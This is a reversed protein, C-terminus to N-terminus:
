CYSVPFLWENNYLYGYSETVYQYSIREVVDLEHTATNEFILWYHHNPAFSFKSVKGIVRYNADARTISSSYDGFRIEYGTELIAKEPHIISLIHARHTEAMIKRSGANCGTFPQMLTGGLIPEMTSFRQANNKISDVFGLKAM